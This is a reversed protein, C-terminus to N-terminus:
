KYNESSYTYSNTKNNLAEVINDDNFNDIQAEKEINLKSTIINLLSYLEKISSDLLNISTDNNTIKNSIEKVDKEIMEVGEKISLSINLDNRAYSKYYISDSDHMYNNQIEESLNEKFRNISNQHNTTIDLFDEQKSSSDLTIRKTYLNYFQGSNGKVVGKTNISTKIYQSNNKDDGFEFIEGLVRKIESNNDNIINPIYRILTNISCDKLEPTKIFDSM